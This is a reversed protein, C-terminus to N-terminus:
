RSTHIRMGPLFLHPFPPLRGVDRDVEPANGFLEIISRSSAVGIQIGFEDEMAGLRRRKLAEFHFEKAGERAVPLDPRLHDGGFSM